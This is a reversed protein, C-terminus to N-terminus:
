PAAAVTTGPFYTRLITRFDQGARARGIAGWQCMGVGHGYGRGELVIGGGDEAPGRVSFYSSNLIEGGPQRLVYRADNGRLTYTGRTTVLETTGVRGSLTSSTVRVARVSGPGRAPVTAFDRLHRAVAADLEAARITKTWRYRPSVQCYDRDTGPVRDSVRQLYPESTRWVESAEATSGGCTSHYPANVTRGRYRLVLGRTNLVARIAVPTEASVGGYVQDATTARLDFSGRGSLRTVTYSRAAVAQAEVAAIETFTRARGIELPVVGALYEELPLHNVVLIGDPTAHFYLLGRYGTREVTVVPEAGAPRLELAGPRFPTAAGDARVVRLTTGRREVRWTRGPSGVAVAGAEGQRELRWTGSAAFSVADRHTGVLVRVNPGRATRPLRQIDTLPVEAGGAGRRDVNGPLRTPPARPPEPEAVPAAPAPQRVAPTDPVTTPDVPRGVGPDPRVPGATGSCGLLAAICAIAAHGAVRRLM